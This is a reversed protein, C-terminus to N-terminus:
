EGEGWTITGTSTIPEGDVEITLLVENDGSSFDIDVKIYDTNNFRAGFSDM